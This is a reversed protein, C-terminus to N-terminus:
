MALYFVLLQRWGHMLRDLHYLMRYTAYPSYDFGKDLPEPLSPGSQMTYGATSGAPRQYLRNLDLSIAIVVQQEQLM